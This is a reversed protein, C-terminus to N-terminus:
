NLKHGDAYWDMQVESRIQEIVISVGYDYGYTCKENVTKKKTLYSLKAKDNSTNRNWYAKFEIVMLNRKD